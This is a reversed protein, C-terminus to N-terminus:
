TSLVEVLPEKKEKDTGAMGTRKSRVISKEVSKEIRVETEATIEVQIPMRVPKNISNPGAKGHNKFFYEAKSTASL